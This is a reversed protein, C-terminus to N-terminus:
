RLLERKLADYLTKVEWVPKATMYRHSLYSLPGGDNGGVDTMDINTIPGRQDDFILPRQVAARSLPQFWFALEAWTRTLAQRQAVALSPDAWLEYEASTSSELVGWYQTVENDFSTLGLGGAYPKQLVQATQWPSDPVGLELVQDTTNYVSILKTADRNEAFLGRWPINGPASARGWRRVYKDELEADSADAGIKM